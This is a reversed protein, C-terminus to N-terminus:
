DDARTSRARAQRCLFSRESHSLWPGTDWLTGGCICRLVETDAEEMRSVATTVTMNVVLWQLRVDPHIAGVSHRGCCQLSSMISWRRGDVATHLAAFTIPDWAQM